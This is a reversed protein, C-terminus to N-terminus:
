AAFTRSARRRRAWCFISSCRAPPRRSSRIAAIPSRPSVGVPQQHVGSYHGTYEAMPGEEEREGALVEGELVIEATAPVMIDCTRARVVPIPGGRLAGAIEYEDGGYRFAAAIMLVPDVGIAVCFPLNEGQAEATEFFERMHRWTNLNIGVRDRGKVQMRVYSLNHRGSVPDRCIVVGANIFAGGDKPAHVPVPLTALNVNDTVVEQCPAAGEIARFAVPARTAADLVDGLKQRECGVALAIREHSGLASGMVPIESGKVNHFLAAKGSQECARLVAGLEHVPDVPTVIEALAGAKRLVDIFDRLDHIPATVKVRGIGSTAAGERRRSFAGCPRKRRASTRMAPLHNFLLNLLIAAILGAGVPSNFITQLNKPWADYFKPAVMPIFGIGLSTAVIFLNQPEAFDVRNLIKIGIVGIATFMVLAIGGIIPGPIAAVLRGLPPFLGLIVLFVGAATAVFRSRTTTLGLVGINQSFTVLPFAGFVGGVLSTLGDALVGGQVDESTAERGVMEGVAVLQPLVEFM